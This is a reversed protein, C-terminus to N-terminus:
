FSSINTWTLMGRVCKQLALCWRVTWPLDELFLDIALAGQPHIDVAVRLLLSGSELPKAIRCHETTCGQGVPRHATALCLGAAKM